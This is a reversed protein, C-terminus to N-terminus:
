EADTRGEVKLQKLHRRYALRFEDDGSDNCTLDLATLRTQVARLATILGVISEALSENARALTENIEHQTM